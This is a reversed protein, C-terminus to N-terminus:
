DGTWQFLLGSDVAFKSLVYEYPLWGYRQDGMSHGPTALLSPVRTEKNSLTNKIKMNDDYWVAVVAHDWISKEGPSPFPIGGKVDTNKPLFGLFIWFM